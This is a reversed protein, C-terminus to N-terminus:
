GESSEQYYMDSWPGMAKTLTRASEGRATASSTEPDTCHARAQELTLGRMLVEHADHRQYARVIKYTAGAIEPGVM